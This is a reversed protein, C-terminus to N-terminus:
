VFPNVHLIYFFNLSSFIMMGVTFWGQADLPFIPATAFYYALGAFIAANVILLIIRLLGWMYSLSGAVTQHPSWYFFRRDV